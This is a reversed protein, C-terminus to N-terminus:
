GCPVAPPLRGGQPSGIKWNPNPLLRPGHGAWRAESPAAPMKKDQLWSRGEADKQLHRIEVGRFNVRVASSVAVPAEHDLLDEGVVPLVLSGSRDPVEEFEPDMREQGCPRQVVLQTLRSFRLAVVAEVWGTM